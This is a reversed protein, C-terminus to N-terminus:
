FTKGCAFWPFTKVNGISAQLIGPILSGPSSGDLPDCLTPCLQLSLLLLLMCYCLHIESDDEKKKKERAMGCVHPIETGQGPISGMGGLAPIQLWGSFNKLITKSLM